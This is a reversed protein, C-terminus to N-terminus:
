YLGSPRGSTGASQPSQLLHDLASPHEEEAAPPTPEAAQLRQGLESLEAKLRQSEQRSSEAEARLQESQERCQDIDERTRFAQNQLQELDRRLQSAQKGVAGTQDAAQTLESQLRTVEIEANSKLKAADAVANKLTHLLETKEDLEQKLRGMATSRDALEKGIRDLKSELESTRTRDAEQLEEIQRSLSAVEKDKAEANKRIAVLEQEKLDLDKSLKDLRKSLQEARFEAIAKAGMLGIRSEEDSGKFESGKTQTRGESSKELTRQEVMKIKVGAAQLEAALRQNEDELSSLSHKAQTLQSQLDAISKQLHESESTAKDVGSQSCGQLIAVLGILIMMSYRWSNMAPKEM